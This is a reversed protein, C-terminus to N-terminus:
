LGYKIKRHAFPIGRTEKCFCDVCMGCETHTRKGCVKCRTFDAMIFWTALFPLLFIPLLVWKGILAFGWTALLFAGAIAITLGGIVRGVGKIYDWM